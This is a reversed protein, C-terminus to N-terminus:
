QRAKSILRDVAELLRIFEQAPFLFLIDGNVLKHRLSFGAKILLASSGPDCVKPLMDELSSGYRLPSYDLSHGLANAMASAIWILVVNATERLADERMGPSARDPHMGQTLLAVLNDASEKLLLLLAQGALAGSFDLATVDCAAGSFSEAYAALRCEDLVTIEPACLDVSSQTMQSMAGAAKGCGINILEALADLQLDNLKM